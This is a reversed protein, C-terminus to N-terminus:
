SLRLNSTHDVKEIVSAFRLMAFVGAKPFSIVSAQSTWDKHLLIGLVTRFTSSCHTVCFVIIVGINVNTVTDVGIKNLDLITERTDVIAIQTMEVETPIMEQRPNSIMLEKANTNKTVLSTLPLNAEGTTVLRYSLLVCVRFFSTHIIYHLLHTVMISPRQSKTRARSNNNASAEFSGSTSYAGCFTYTSTSFHAWIIHPTVFSTEIKKASFSVIQQNM